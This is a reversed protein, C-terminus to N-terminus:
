NMGENAVWCAVRRGDTRSILPPVETRCGDLAHSCRPHYVCGTPLANFDPPQGPISGLRDDRPHDLKPTVALLARTYPHLPDLLVDAAPGDEVIGGAYMTVVKSCNQSLLGLNHSILLVAM